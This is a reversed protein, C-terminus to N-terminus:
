LESLKCEKCISCKLPQSSLVMLVQYQHNPHGLGARWNPNDPRSQYCNIVEFQSSHFELLYNKLSGLLKFKKDIVISAGKDATKTIVMENKFLRPISILSRTLTPVLLTNELVLQDGLHNVLVASGTSTANLFNSHGGTSIKIRSEAMPQFEDPNNILHHQSYSPYRLSMAMRSRSWNLRLPKDLILGAWNPLHGNHLISNGVIIPTTVRLRQTTSEWLASLDRSAERRQKRPNQNEPIGGLSSNGATQNSNCQSEVIVENMIINDVVNYMDESLKALISFSLINDPVGLKILMRHM